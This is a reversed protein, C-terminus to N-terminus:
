RLGSFLLLNPWHQNKLTKFEQDSNGPMLNHNVLYLEMTKRSHMFKILVTYVSSKHNNNDTFRVYTLPCHHINLTMIVSMQVFTQLWMIKKSLKTGNRWNKQFFCRCFFPLNLLIPIYLMIVISLDIPSSKWSPKWLESFIMTSLKPLLIESKNLVRWWALSSM